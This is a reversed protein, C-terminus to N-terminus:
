DFTATAISQHLLEQLGTIWAGTEVQALSRRKEKEIRGAAQAVPNPSFRLALYGSADLAKQADQASKKERQTALSTTGDATDLQNFVGHLKLKQQLFSRAGIEALEAEEARRTETSKQILANKVDPTISEDVKHATKEIFGVVREGLITQLLTKRQARIEAQKAKVARSLSKEIPILFSHAKFKDTWLCFEMYNNVAQIQAPSLQEGLAQLRALLQDRFLREELEKSVFTAHDVDVVDLNPADLRDEETHVGYSPERTNLVTQLDLQDSYAQLKALRAAALAPDVEREEGDDALRRGGQISYVKALGERSGNAMDHILGM